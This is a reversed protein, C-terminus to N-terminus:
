VMLRKALVKAFRLLPPDATTIGKMRIRIDRLVELNNQAHDIVPCKASM